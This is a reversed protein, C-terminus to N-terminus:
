HTGFASLIGADSAHRVVNGGIVLALLITGAALDARVRRHPMVSEDALPTTMTDM